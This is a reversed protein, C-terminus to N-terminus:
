IVGNVAIGFWVVVRSAVGGWGVGSWGVGDFGGSGVRM